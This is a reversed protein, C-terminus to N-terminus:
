CMNDYSTLEFWVKLKKGEYATAYVGGSGITFEGSEKSKTLAEVSYKMAAKMLDGQTPTINGTSYWTWDLHEMTKVVKNWDVESVVDFAIQSIEAM